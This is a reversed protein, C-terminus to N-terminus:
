RVSSNRIAEAYRRLFDKARRGYVMLLTEGHPGYAASEKHIGRELGDAIEEAEQLDNLAM